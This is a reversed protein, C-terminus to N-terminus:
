PFCQSFGGVTALCWLSWKRCSNRTLFTSSVLGWWSSSNLFPLFVCSIGTRMDEWFGGRQFGDQRLSAWLVLFSGTDSHNVLSLKSVLGMVIFGLVPLWMASGDEQTGQGQQEGGPRGKGIFDRAKGTHTDEIIWKQTNFLFGNEPEPRPGGEQLMHVCEREKLVTQTQILGPRRFLLCWSLILFVLYRLFTWSLFPPLLCPLSSTM